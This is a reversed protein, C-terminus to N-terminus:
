RIAQANEPTLVVTRVEGSGGMTSLARGNVTWAAAGADGVRITIERRAKLVQTSGPAMTQYVIRTGDISASLWCPRAFTLSVVLEGPNQVIMGQDTPVPVAAPSANSQAIAAPATGTTGTVGPQPPEDTTRWRHLAPIILLAALVLAAIGWPGSYSPEDSPVDAAMVPEPPPPGLQAFYRAVADAPDLGLERGYAAVFGRLYPRAPLARVDDRELAEIYRVPIRTASAIRDVTLGRSERIARFEVGTTSM